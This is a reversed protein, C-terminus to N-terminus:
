ASPRPCETIYREASHCALEEMLRVNRNRLANTAEQQRPLARLHHSARNPDPPTPANPPTLRVAEPAHTVSNHAHRHRGATAATAAPPLPPRRRRVEIEALLVEKTLAMARGRVTALLGGRQVVM